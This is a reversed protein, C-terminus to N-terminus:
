GPRPPLAEELRALGEEIVAMSTAFSLRLNHTSGPGYAAGPTVILGAEELLYAALARSDGWAEAYAPFAYFTGEPAACDIGDLRNLGAAIADRRRGYESRMAEVFPAGEAYAVVAAHQVISTACRATLHNIRALVPALAPPALCYGLRWGTMAYTKSLSNLTVTRAATEPGLTAISRHQAGDYVLESYVEDSLIWLDHAEAVDAIIQLEPGAFVRGTPNCPSNVIIARTEETVAEALPEREIVFRGQREPMAVGVAAAGTLAVLSRYPGYCPELLLVEDGPSFLARSAISLAGVSGTTVIVQEPSASAGHREAEFGAIAERLAALGRPDVYKDRGDRVARLLAEKVPPPPEFDPEGIGLDVIARGDAELADARRRLDVVASGGISDAFPSLAPSM